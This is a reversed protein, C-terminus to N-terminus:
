LNLDKDEQLSKWESYTLYTGDRKPMPVFPGKDIRERVYMVGTTTDCFYHVFVLSDTPIKEIDVYKFM